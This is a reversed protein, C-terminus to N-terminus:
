FRLNDQFWSCILSVMADHEQKQSFDHDAPLLVYDGKTLVSALKELDAPEILDDDQAGVIMTPVELRRVQEYIPAIGAVLQKVHTGMSTRAPEPISQLRSSVLYKDWSKEPNVIPCKLALADIGSRAAYLTCLSGSISSGYLGMKGTFVTRGAAVAAAIDGYFDWMTAQLLQGESKGHGTLDFSLSGLGERSLADIIATHTDNEKSSLFGHCLVVGSTGPTVVADLQLGKPNTIKM